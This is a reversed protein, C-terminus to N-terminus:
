WTGCASNQSSPGEICRNSEPFTLTSTRSPSTNVKESDVDEKSNSVPHRLNPASIHNSTSTSPDDKGVSIAVHYPPPDDYPPPHDGRGLTSARSSQSPRPLSNTNNFMNALSSNQRNMTFIGSLIELSPHRSNPRGTTERRGIVIESPRTTSRTTTTATTTAAGQNTSHPSRQTTSHRVSKVMHKFCLDIIRHMSLVVLVLVLFSICIMVMLFYIDQDVGSGNNDNNNHNDIGCNLCESTANSCNACNLDEDLNVNILLPPPDTFSPGVDAPDFLNTLFTEKTMTFNLDATNLKGLLNM